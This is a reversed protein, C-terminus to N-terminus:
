RSTALAPYEFDVLLLRYSVSIYVCQSALISFLFRFLIIRM